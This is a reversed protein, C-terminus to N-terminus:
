AAGRGRTGECAHDAVQRTAAHRRRSRARAVLGLPLLAAMLLAMPAPEPVVAVAPAVGFLLTAGPADATAFGTSPVNPDDNGVSALLEFVVSTAGPGPTLAYPALAACPVRVTGQVCREVGVGVVSQFASVVGPGPADGPVSLRLGAATQARWPGATAAGPTGAEALGTLFLSTVSSGPLAAVGFSLQMRRVDVYCSQGGACFSGLALAHESRAGFPITPVVRLGVFSTGGIVVAVPSVRVDAATFPNSTLQTRSFLDAFLNTVRLAGATSAGPAALTCGGAGHALYDALTGPTCAPTPAQAGAPEPALASRLGLLAAGLLLHRRASSPLPPHGSM